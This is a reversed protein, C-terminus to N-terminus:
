PQVEGDDESPERDAEEVKAVLDTAEAGSNFKNSVIHEAVLHPLDTRCHEGKDTLGVRDHSMMYRTRVDHQVEYGHANHDVGEPGVVPAGSGDAMTSASRVIVSNAGYTEGIM